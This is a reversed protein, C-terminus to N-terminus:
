DYRAAWASIVEAVFKADAPDTLMHDAEPLSVFSKPHRAAEYIQRANEIEVIDDLPSHFILLAAGMSRIAEGLKHSEIDEVFSKKITFARGGIRVEAEGEAEIDARAHDFHRAVHEPAAPAGITAVYKAEPVRGAAALVAAGGLSHGILVSPARYKERLFAAASLVDGVNTSFTTDSFDGRSQGLGTFDFRMVGFNRQRLAKAIRSAALVDKSGTFGHAFLVYGRAECDDPEDIRAALEIGLDNAFTEDHRAM